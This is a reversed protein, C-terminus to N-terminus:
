SHSGDYSNTESGGMSHTTKSFSKGFINVEFDRYLGAEPWSYSMTRTGTLTSGAKGTTPDGFKTAASGPSDGTKVCRQREDFSIAPLSELSKKQLEIASQAMAASYILVGGILSWGRM